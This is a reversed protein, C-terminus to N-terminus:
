RRPYDDIYITVLKETMPEIAQENNIRRGESDQTHVYRGGRRSYLPFGTQAGGTEFVGGGGAGEATREGSNALEFRGRVGSHDMERGNSGGGENKIENYRLDDGFDVGNDQKEEQQVMPLRLRGDTEGSATDRATEEVPEVMPLHLKGDEISSVSHQRNVTQNQQTLSNSVLETNALLEPPQGSQWDAIKSFKNENKIYITATEPLGNLLNFVSLRGHISTAKHTNEGKLDQNILFSAIIPNNHKDKGNTIYVISNREPNYIVAPAEKVNKQLDYLDQDTLEHASRSNNKKTRQGKNIISLPIYLPAPPVDDPLFAESEGLYLADSSRITGNKKIYGEVQKEWSMHRTRSISYQITETDGDSDGVKPLKLRGDESVSHQKRKTREALAAAHGESEELASDIEDMAKALEEETVEGREFAEDLDRRAREADEATYEAKQLTLRGDTGELYKSEKQFERLAKAYLDSARRLKLKEKAQKNGLKALINNIGNIM